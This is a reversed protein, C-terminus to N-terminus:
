VSSITTQVRSRDKKAVAPSGRPKKLGKILDRTVEYGKKVDVMWPMGEGQQTRPRPKRKRKRKRRPAM